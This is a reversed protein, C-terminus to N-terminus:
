HLDLQPEWNIPGAVATRLLPNWKLRLSSGCEAGRQTKDAPSVRGFPPPYSHTGKPGALLSGSPQPPCLSPSLPSASSRSPLVSSCPESAATEPRLPASTEHTTARSPVFVLALCDEGKQGRWRWRKPGNAKLGCKWSQVLHASLDVVQVLLPVPALLKSLSCSFM